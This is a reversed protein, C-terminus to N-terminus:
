LETDENIIQLRHNIWETDMNIIQLRCISQTDAYVVTYTVGNQPVTTPYISRSYKYM